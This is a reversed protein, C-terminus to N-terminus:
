GDPGLSGALPIHRETCRLLPRVFVFLVPRCRTELVCRLQASVCPEGADNSVEWQHMWDILTSNSSSINSPSFFFHLSTIEPHRREAQSEGGDAM